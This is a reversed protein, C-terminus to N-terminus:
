KKIMEKAEKRTMSPLTGTIVFTFGELTKPYAESSDDVEHTWHAVSKLKDLFAQNSPQSFWDLIAAAINPGVGEMGMLESQEAQALNQLSGYENALNAAMVEGVGRIGLAGILRALSSQKSNEIAQLLNEAKKEAFGEITLLDEKTLSFLDAVDKVLGTEVLQEAVKIGLGEIDM